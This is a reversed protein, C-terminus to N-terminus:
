LVFHVYVWGINYYYDTIINVMKSKKVVTLITVVTLIKVMTLMKVVTLIKVM